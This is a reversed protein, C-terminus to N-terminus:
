VSFLVQLIQRLNIVTQFASSETASYLLIFAIAEERTLDKWQSIGRSLSLRATEQTVEGTDGIHSTILSQNTSSRESV